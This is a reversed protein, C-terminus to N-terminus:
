RSLTLAALTHPPILVRVRDGVQESAPQVTAIGAEGIDVIVDPAVYAVAADLRWGGGEPLDVTVEHADSLDRSLVVITAADDGDSFGVGHVLEYDFAKSGEAYTAVDVSQAELLVTQSLMHEAFLKTAVYSSKTRLGAGTSRLPNYWSEFLLEGDASGGFAIAMHQAAQDVGLQAYLILMDALGLGVRHTNAVPDVAGLPFAGGVHYETIALKLPEQRQLGQLRAQLQEYGARFLESGAIALAPAQKDFYGITGADDVQYHHVVVMEVAPHVLLPGLEALAADTGDWADMSAMSLPVWFRLAHGPTRRPPARRLDRPA